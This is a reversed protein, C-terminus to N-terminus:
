RLGGDEPQGSNEHAQHSRQMYGDLTLGQHETVVPLAIPNADRLFMQCRNCDRWGGTHDHAYDQPHGVIGCGINTATHLYPPKAARAFFGPMGPCTDPEVALPILGADPLLVERVAALSFRWYDSPYNHEATCTVGDYGRASLLLMGGPRLVRAMEIVSLWPRPDHELMETSVVLDFTDDKFGLHAAQMVHDVGPGVRMDVGIYKGCGRQEFLPRVSGNEDYSGVELVWTSAIRITRLQEAFWQM